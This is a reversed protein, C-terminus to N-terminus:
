GFVPLNMPHLQESFATGRRASLLGLIVSLTALVLTVYFPGSAIDAYNMVESVDILLGLLASAYFVSKPGVFTVLSSLVLLGALVAYVTGSVGPPAASMAPCSALSSSCSLTYCVVGWLGAFIGVIGAATSVRAM